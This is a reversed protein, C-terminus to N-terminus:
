QKAERCKQADIQDAVFDCDNVVRRVATRWAANFKDDPEYPMGEAVLAAGEAIKRLRDRLAKWNPAKVAGGM